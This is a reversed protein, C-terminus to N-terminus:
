SIGGELDLDPNWNPNALRLSLQRWRPLLQGIFLADADPPSFLPHHFVERGEHRVVLPSAWPAEVLVEGHRSRLFFLYSSKRDEPVTWVGETGEGLYDIRGFRLELDDWLHGLQYRSEEHAVAGDLAQRAQLVEAGLRDRVAELQAARAAHGNWRRLEAAPNRVHRDIMALMEASELRLLRAIAETQDPLDLMPAGRLFSGLWEAEDLFRRSLAALTAQRRELLSEVVLLSEEAGRGVSLCEAPSTEPDAVAARGAALQDAAAALQGLLDMAEAQDHDLRRSLSEAREVARRAAERIRREREERQRALEEIRRQLEQWERRHREEAERLAQELRRHQEEAHERLRELRELAQQGERELRRDAQELDRQIQRLVERQRGMDAEAEGLARRLGQADSQLRSFSRDRDALASELQQVVRDRLESPVVSM